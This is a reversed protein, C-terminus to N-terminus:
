GLLGAYLATQSYDAAVFPELLDRERRKLSWELIDRIEARRL